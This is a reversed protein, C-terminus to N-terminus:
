PPASSQSCPRSRRAPTPAADGRRTSRASPNADCRARSLDKEWAGPPGAEPDARSRWGRRGAVAPHRFRRGSPARRARRACRRVTAQVMPPVGDRAPEDGLPLGGPRQQTLRGARAAGASAPASMVVDGVDTHIQRQTLSSPLPRRCGTPTTSSPWTPRTRCRRQAPSGGSGARHHARTAGPLQTSLRPMTPALLGRVAPRSPWWAFTAARRVKRRGVPGSRRM